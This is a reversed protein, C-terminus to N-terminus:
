FIAQEIHNLLILTLLFHQITIKLLILEFGIYKKELKTSCM